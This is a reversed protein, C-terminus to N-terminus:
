EHDEYTRALTVIANTSMITTAVSVANLLASKTVKAPDIIGSEMLDVKAKSNANFGMTHWHSSDINSFMEALEEGDCGANRMITEFPKKLARSLICGAAWEENSSSKKDGWHTINYLSDFNFLALGGGPLVGEENAARVACVADEIRDYREKQETDTFGGVFIAGLSGGLTAIRTAIHDKDAKSTANKYQADLELLRNAVEDSIHNSEKTLITENRSVVVKKIKGLDEVTALSLDDGTRESFYTANFSIALDSLLEQSKWGFSPPDIVCVRVKNKVVNAALTNLMNPSCPAVILLKGQKLVIPKLLKELEFINDLQKDSVFLYCDEFICQDKEHNNIFHSSSYGRDLKLGDIVHSYTKETDSKEVTVVGSKGVQWYAEGIIQGLGKDNNASITAIDVLKKKTNIKISNKELFEVYENAIRVIENLLVTRNLAVESNELEWIIENVIAEALVISTTTGDGADLATKAAAQKVVKIALNEIPDLLDISKAVTVGDKTVTIGHTHSQSEILVTQGQPGLTSKVAKSLKSIGSILKKRADTDFALNKPSYSGQNM